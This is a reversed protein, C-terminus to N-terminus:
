VHGYSYRRPSYYQMRGNEEPVQCVTVAPCSVQPRDEEWTIECGCAEALLSFDFGLV